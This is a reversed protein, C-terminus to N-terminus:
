ELLDDNFSDLLHKKLHEYSKDGWFSWSLCHGTQSGENAIRDITNVSVMKNFDANKKGVLNANTSLVYILGFHAQTTENSLVNVYGLLHPTNVDIFGGEVFVSNSLQKLMTHHIPNGTVFPDEIAEKISALHNTYLGSWQGPPLFPSGSNPRNKLNSSRYFSLQKLKPNVIYCCTVIQKCSNLYPNGVSDPNSVAIYDNIIISEVDKENAPMFGNFEEKDGFLSSKPVITFENTNEM